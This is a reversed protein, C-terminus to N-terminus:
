AAMEIWGSVLANGGSGSDEDDMDVTVDAPSADYIKYALYLASSHNIEGDKAPSFTRPSIASDSLYGALVVLPATGGSAAVNQSSPNGTTGQANFTSSTLTVAPIDGRFTYCAKLEGSDFMGTVSTSGEDGDALKTSIMLRGAITNTFTVNARNTFDAPTVATPPSGSGFCGDLLVILDGQDIDAPLTITPTNNSTSSGVQTISALAPASAAMRLGCGMGPLFNM